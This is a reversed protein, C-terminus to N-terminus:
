KKSKAAKAAAQRARFRKAWGPQDTREPRVLALADAEVDRTVVSGAAVLAGDGIKVPAVLASNSGIFVGEGIETRYKFYGDYNCTITGAGINVNAGVSADGLYTLHNAKAGTGLTTNKVEVFNGVRSGEGLVAGPRLRAYPGVDAKSAVTAGELHSFAHITVDDAITVGPGFVVNPEITVDRGIQTDHAFFVTDPAVLTVGDAMAQQRRKAQWAGEVAALEARSNIGAVEDAATEIVVAGRGDAIALMVIDPLYYEGAANANGVRDLLAWLDRAHVATVGSNCLDVAREEASADKYEVMKAINGADDAIIRGYAAAQPPRFGLVAVAPQDEADLRAALRAVTDASLLPTDGFCVLVIGDHDSLTERAQLAAHATGLQERQWAIEVGRGAVAAEVQEGVAGVIVVRRSIGAANLSDLLHFLMPQGALLHLVKHRSSKMRTGQGAALIVAAIPQANM